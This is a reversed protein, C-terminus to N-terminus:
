NIIMFRNQDTLGTNKQWQDFKAQADAIPPLLEVIFKDDDYSYNLIFGDMELPVRAKLQAEIMLQPHEELYKENAADDAGTFPHITPALEQLPPNQPQNTDSTTTDPNQGYNFQQPKALLIVLTLLAAITVLAILIVQYKLFFEKIKEM